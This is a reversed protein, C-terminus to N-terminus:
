MFTYKLLFIMNIFNINLNEISDKSCLFKVPFNLVFGMHIYKNGYIFM